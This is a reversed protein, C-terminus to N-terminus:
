STDKKSSFSGKCIAYPLGILILWTGPDVAFVIIAFMGLNVKAFPLGMLFLLPGLVPSLSHHKDIGKRKNMHSKIICVYNAIIILVGSIM